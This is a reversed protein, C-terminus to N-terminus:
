DDSAEIRQQERVLYDIAAAVCLANDCDALLNRLQAQCTECTAVQVRQAPTTPTAGFWHPGAKRTRGYAVDAREPHLGASWGNPTTCHVGVRGACRPRPCAVTLVHTRRHFYTVGAAYATAYDADPDLTAIQEATPTPTTTNM